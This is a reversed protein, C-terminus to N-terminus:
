AEKSTLFFILAVAGPVLLLEASASGVYATIIINNDLTGTNDIVGEEADNIYKNYLGFSVATGVM